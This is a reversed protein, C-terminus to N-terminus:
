PAAQGKEKNSTIWQAKKDNEVVLGTIFHANKSWVSAKNNKDWVKIKWYYISSSKLTQGKFEIHTQKDSVVKQSDWIDGKNDVLNKESSAVMIQYATQMQGNEDTTLQWSFVPQALVGAPNTFNNCTLNLVQVGKQAIVSNGIFLSIFLVIPTFHRNKM